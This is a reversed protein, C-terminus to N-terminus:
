TNKIARAEVAERLAIEPNVGKSRAYDVVSLLLMGIDDAELSQLIAEKSGLLWDLKKGLEFSRMLAPLSRPVKEAPHKDKDLKETAKIIQWNTVVEEASNVSVNDFVHPHRRILKDVISNEIDEYNFSSTEEAIVTHFAIQLLVDGLEEVVESTNGFSIADVVECAEEILYPRLSEHTQEKDWLCGDPARLRRMINLLKEM